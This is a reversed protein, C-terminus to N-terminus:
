AANTELEGDIFLDIAQTGVVHTFYGNVTGNVVGGVLPVMKGLNIAGTTGAKTVLRFGVARNIAALTAGPLRELLKLTVKNGIQASAKGVVENLGDGVLCLYCYTRVRDARPDLGGLKAIAAIMRLQIFYTAALDAPISVPLTALGGM